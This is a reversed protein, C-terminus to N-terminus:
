GLIRELKSVYELQSHTCTAQIIYGKLNFLVSLFPSDTCHNVVGITGNPIGVFRGRRLIVRDGVKFRVVVREM